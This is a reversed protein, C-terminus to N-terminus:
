PPRYASRGKVVYLRTLAQVAPARAGQGDVAAPIDGGDEGKPRGPLRQKDAPGARQGDAVLPEDRAVATRVLEARESASPTLDSM